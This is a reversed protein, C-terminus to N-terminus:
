DHYLVQEMEPMPELIERCYVASVNFAIKDVRDPYMAILSVTAEGCVTSFGVVKYVEGDYKYLKGKILDTPM